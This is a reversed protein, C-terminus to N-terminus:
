ESFAFGIARTHYYLGGDQVIMCRMNKDGDNHHSHSACPPTLMVAHPQWDKREGDIMSFCDEGELCLTLAMSNHVHPRQFEGPPLSNLALTLTPHINRTSELAQHSLVVAYGPFTKVDPHKYLADLEDELAKATYIVPAISADRPDSPYLEQFNLAPEDTVLWAVVDEHATHEIVAAGPLALVDGRGWSATEGLVSTSGSGTLVVMLQASARLELAMSEGARIRMYRSLVLPTTAPYSTELSASLDMDILKTPTSSAFAEDREANFQV